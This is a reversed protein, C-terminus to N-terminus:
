VGDFSWGTTQDFSYGNTQDFTPVAGPPPAAGQLTISFDVRRSGLVGSVVGSISGSAGLPLSASADGNAAITISALGSIKSWSAGRLYRAVNAIIGTSTGSVAVTRDAVNNGGGAGGGMGIKRRKM